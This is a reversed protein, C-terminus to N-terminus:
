LRLVGVQRRERIHVTDVFRMTGSKYAMVLSHTRPVAALLLPRRRFLDGDTVGSASLFVINDGSALDEHSVDKSLDIGM